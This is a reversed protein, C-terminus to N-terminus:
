LALFLQLVVKSGDVAQLFDLLFKLLVQLQGRLAQLLFGNAKLLHLLCFRTQLLFQVIEGDVQIVLSLNDGAQLLFLLLKVLHRSNQLQKKQSVGATM